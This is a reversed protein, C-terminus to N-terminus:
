KFNVQVGDAYLNGSTQSLAIMIRLKKAQPPIGYIKSFLTWDQTGVISGLNVDKAVKTSGDAKTFEINVIGTNWSDKGQKINEAKLWAGVDVQTAGQPIDFQQDIGKWEETTSEILASHKGEKAIDSIKANGRWNNLNDEFNGNQFAIPQNKKKEEEAQQEKMQQEFVNNYAADDLAVISVDDFYITGNTQSLALMARIKRAGSPIKIIKKYQKWPTSGTVTTLNENSISGEGSTLFEIALTGANWTNDGVEIGSAKIWASVEIAVAKKPLYVTQDVAKWEKGGFQSVVCSNNGSHKDYPSLSAEGRWGELENEFGGNQILNTQSFLTTTSAIMLVYIAYKKM